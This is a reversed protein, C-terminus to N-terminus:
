GDPGGDTILLEAVRGLGTDVRIEVMGVPEDLLSATEEISLGEVFHLVLASRQEFPLHQLAAWPTELDDPVIRGVTRSTELRTRERVDVIIERM